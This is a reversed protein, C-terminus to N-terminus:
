GQKQIPIQRSVALVIGLEGFLILLSTGGSSFFPLSAGTVPFFGTVVGINFITQVAIQTIIGAVVLTGFRDKARMAIMYGRLILAAFLVMIALAGIFGLEECVISFIFDNYPEPLFMHKQRSQGLGLGWLGGSGIAYLSQLVQFGEGAAYAEPNLWANIRDMGYGVEFVLIYGAVIAGLGLLLLRWFSAGGLFIIIVGTLFIIVTASLHPEKMLLIAFVGLVFLFPFIGMRFTKMNDRMKVCYSSFAIIVAVKAIESPQVTFLGFFSFWRTANNYTEGIFLVLILLILSVIISITDFRSYFQYPIQSVFFMIAIGALAYIAQSEIFYYPDGYKYYAASYSASFMMVYGVAMLILVLMTFPIDVGGIVRKKKILKKAKAASFVGKKEETGEMGIEVERAEKDPLVANENQHEVERRLAEMDVVFPNEEQQPETNQNTNKKFFDLAM